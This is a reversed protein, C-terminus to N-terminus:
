RWASAEAVPSRDKLPEWWARNDAYWQVTEALGVEFGIQDNWGLEERLKMSDLLYRRDHGPRDPVIQKLSAVEDQMFLTNTTTGVSKIALVCV